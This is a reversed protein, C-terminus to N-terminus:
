KLPFFQSLFELKNVDCTRTYPNTNLFKICTFNTTTATSRPCSDPSSVQIVITLWQSHTHVVCQAQISLSPIASNELSNFTAKLVKKQGVSVTYYDDYRTRLLSEGQMDIM